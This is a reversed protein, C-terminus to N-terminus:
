ATNQLTSSLCEFQAVKPVQMNRKYVYMGGQRQNDQLDSKNKIPLVLSLCIQILYVMADEDEISVSTNTCFSVYNFKLKVHSM